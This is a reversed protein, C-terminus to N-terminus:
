KNQVPYLHGARNIDMMRNEPDLKIWEINELPIPVNLEYTPQPWNWYPKIEAFHILSNNEKEKFALNLPVYYQKELGDKTKLKLTLPMPMDGKRKLQISTQDQSLSRVAEIDYDITKTSYVWYDNYWKLQMGSNKEAIRIFDGDTPHHFKCANYFDLLTKDLIEQGIIGSLQHLYLSGKSYAGIGYATNYNYHDAHTSLPEEQNSSVLNTYGTYASKYLEYLPKSEGKILGKSALHNMIRESAYSTFGEDMWYYKSENFGLVGQYWSHMLEHISVGVLSNLNRHGTILTAMPYEM